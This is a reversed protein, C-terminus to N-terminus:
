PNDKSKLTFVLADRGNEAKATHKVELCGIFTMGEFGPTDNYIYLEINKDKLLNMCLGPSGKISGKQLVVTNRLSEKDSDSLNLEEDNMLLEPDPMFVEDGEEGTCDTRLWSNVPDFSAVAIVRRGRFIYHTHNDVPIVPNMPMGDCNVECFVGDNHLRPALYGGSIFRYFDRRLDGCIYNEDLFKQVTTTSGAMEPSVPMLGLVRKMLAVNLMFINQSQQEAFVTKHLQKIDYIDKAYQEDTCENLTGSKVIRNFESAPNEVKLIQAFRDLDDPNECSEPVLSVDLLRGNKEDYKLSYKM